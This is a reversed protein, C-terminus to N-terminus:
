RLRWYLWFGSLGLAFLVLSAVDMVWIAYRGFIRGSHVDLLIRQLPIGSALIDASRRKVDAPLDQLASLTMGTSSSKGWNLGDVSAFVASPTQLMVNSGMKGLALIPYAPLSQKEVKNLLQGDSQYLYLATATAVYNIGKVEIAGVPQGASGPLLKDDLVWRDDDWSLYNKGLLYGQTPDAVQIGYWRMLWPSSVEQKDLKLIEVHNIALGSVLLYVLFFVIAAGVLGHWRRVAHINM